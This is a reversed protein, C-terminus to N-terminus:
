RHHFTKLVSGKASRWVVTTPSPGPLGGVGLVPVPVVYFNNVATVTVSRLGHKAAYRLTVKRVGDPVVGYEIGKGGPLWRSGGLGGHEIQSATAAGGHGEFGGPEVTFLVMGEPGHCGPTLPRFPRAVPVLYYSTGSVARVLRVYKVYVGEGLLASGGPTLPPPLADAATQPHRLAGLITLFGAGPAGESATEPPPTACVAVAAAARAPVLGAAGAATVVAVVAACGVPVGVFSRRM